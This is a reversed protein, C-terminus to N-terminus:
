TLLDESVVRYVDLIVLSERGQWSKCFREAEVYNSFEDLPCILNPLEFVQFMNIREVKNETEWNTLLQQVSFNTGNNPTFFLAAGVQRIRKGSNIAEIINM